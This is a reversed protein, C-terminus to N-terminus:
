LYQRVLAVLEQPGFASRLLEARVGLNRCQAVADPSSSIVLDYCGLEDRDPLTSTLQGMLLRVCPKIEKLFDGKIGGVDRVLLVDPQHHGIQTSLIEYFWTQRSDLAQLVPSVLDKFHRVPTEAAKRVRQLLTVANPGSTKAAQLRLRHEHMWTKQLVENNAYFDYAEHGLERLTSASCDAMGSPGEGRVRREELAETNITVITLTRLSRRRNLNMRAEAWASSKLGSEHSCWQRQMHLLTGTWEDLLSVAVDCLADVSLALPLVRCRFLAERLDDQRLLLDQLANGWREEPMLEIVAGAHASPLLMSSGHVGVIVHSCAYRRCLRREAEDDPATMRLDLIWEPLGGPRGVGAVSFDLSPLRKRLRTALTVIKLSQELIACSSGGMEGDPVGDSPAGIWLRDDRWIFTVTPRYLREEWEHLPFPTVRTFKEIDFDGPHPHSFAVSLYCEDLKEIRRHIEQGLWDNWEAGTNLPQDVTWVSAVGEPVLWRLYRPVLVILGLDPRHGLYHQANLLKLLCHGYRYDLCNLLVARRVPKYEEVLFNLPKSQRQAYSMYLWESFWSVSVRDHVAGTAKELLMPYHLGHGSPLDGYYERGCQSCVLEALNRMGPIYWGQVALRVHCYPCVHDADPVPHLPIM